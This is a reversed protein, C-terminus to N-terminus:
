PNIEKLQGFVIIREITTGIPWCTMLSIEKKSQDRSRLTKVDGPKVISKDTVRYVFKKQNYFIIIEDEAELQDLLAFVENYESQIWPYNSSHWFIFVNGTEGPKATWPYRVIGKKLEEMFTDELKEYDEDQHHFVDILPINKGIKPIILRNEYPTVQFTVTEEGDSISGLLREATYSRSYVMSPDIAAIKETLIKTPDQRDIESVESAHVEMSSQSVVSQLENKITNLTSPDIWHLFRASYAGFNLAGMLVSFITGSLTLYLVMIKIGWYIKRGFSSTHNQQQLLGQEYEYLPDKHM